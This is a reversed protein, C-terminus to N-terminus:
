TQSCKSFIVLRLLTMQLCQWRSNFNLREVVARLFWKFALYRASSKCRICISECTLKALHWHPMWIINLIFVRKSFSFYIYSLLRKIWNIVVVSCGKLMTSCSLKYFITMFQIMSISRWTYLSDFRQHNMFCLNHSIFYSILYSALAHISM